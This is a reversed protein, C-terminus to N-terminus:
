AVPHRSDPPPRLRVGRRAVLVVITIVAGTVIVALVLMLVVAWVPLGGAATLEPTAQAAAALAGGFVLIGALALATMSRKLV